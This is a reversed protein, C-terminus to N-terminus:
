TIEEQARSKQAKLTNAVARALIRQKKASKEDTNAQTLKEKAEGLATKEETSLTADTIQTIKEEKAVKAERLAVEAQRYAKEMAVYGAVETNKSAKLQEKKATAQTGLNQIATERTSFDSMKNNEVEGINVLKAEVTKQQEQLTKVKATERLEEKNVEGIEFKIAAFERQNEKKAHKTKNLTKKAATKVTNAANLESKKSDYKTTEATIKTKTDKMENQLAKLKTLLQKKLKAGTSTSKM